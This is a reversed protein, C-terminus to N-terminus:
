NVKEKTLETGQFPIRGASVSDEVDWSSCDVFVEFSPSASTLNNL